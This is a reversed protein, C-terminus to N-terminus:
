LTVCYVPSTRAAVELNGLPLNGGQGLVTEERLGCRLDRLDDETGPAEPRARGGRVSALSVRGGKAASREPAIRAKENRTRSTVKGGCSGRVGRM